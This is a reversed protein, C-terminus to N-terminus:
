IRDPHTLCRSSLHSEEGWKLHSLKKQGPGIELLWVEAIHPGSARVSSGMSCPCVGRRVGKSWEGSGVCVCVCVCVGIV